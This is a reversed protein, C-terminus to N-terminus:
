QYSDHVSHARMTRPYHIGNVNALRGVQDSGCRRVTWLANGGPAVRRPGRTKDLELRSVFSIGAPGSMWLTERADELVQYASNSALGQDTGFATLEGNRWRFLGAGRTGFWLGGDSDEHVRLRAAFLARCVMM